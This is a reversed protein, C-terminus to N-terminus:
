CRAATSARARERRRRGPGPHAPRLHVAPRPDRPGRAREGHDAPVRRRRPRGQPVPRDLAPVATGLRLHGPAQGEAALSTASARSSRSRSATSTPRCRRRLRGPRAPRAACGGRADLTTPAASSRRRHRAGRHRRRRVGADDPEPRNDLLARAAVKAAEVDPQDFPNIGLLRGAVATAYEWVLLQAGLSGSVLIEGEHRDAPFLHHAEANDVLRVIQLDPLNETLEPSLPDLVVPLLGTGQKGTSEAILQEAWDAFGVIHTGDAIIGLKDKLPSRARSPRASCWARTARPRRGRARAVHGRGRRAARRHRRRRARLARPRVRHPGLLPRGREPRRQVRPLGGRAGLRRAALRPRHRRRHARAPRHGRRPVCKEYVRRQSDTELTSGSKSSIVVATTELRDRLAALVQGPDTSDLVTLQSARRHPHHGRSRALLRGDRRARHPQRRAAHLEDRLAVIERGLPRSVPSPRRGASASAGGRGRCGPGLAGPGARHHRVRGPRRRAAARGTKVAERPRAPSTSASRESPPRWRPRHGHRAARELLRHVERRGGERAARHRRRYSVGLATSRRRAGADADDYSGTVTDGAISATTSPPRSRRRRCRTSRHEPRRARHRLAHRAPEPGQRRDVGVAAAARQRRGRHAGQRARHRVAGRLGPLRPARQRHGGQEEARPGRRHRHRDLRKDIETDVRSVFFSAVSHIRRCTSAPRRPRRSAPRPLRRHGRPLARPQLDAHRQRQHGAAITETIAELGEVTAPIKIM